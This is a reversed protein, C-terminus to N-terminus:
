ARRLQKRLRGDALAVMRDMEALLRGSFDRERASHGIASQSKGSGSCARCVHRLVGDYGGTVGRGTCSDCAPALWAALARVVLRGVVKEPLQDKGRASLDKAFAILSRKAASFTTYRSFAMELRARDGAARGIEGRMRDHEAALRCLLVGLGSTWAAAMLLDSAGQVRERTSLDSTQTASQYREIASARDDM